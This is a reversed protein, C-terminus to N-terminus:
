KITANDLQCRLKDFKNKLIACIIEVFPETVISGEISLIILICLCYPLIGMGRTTLEEKNVEVPPETYWLMADKQTETFM